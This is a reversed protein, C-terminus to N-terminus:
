GGVRDALAELRESWRGRLAEADVDADLHTLTLDLRTGQGDARLDLEVVTAPADESAHWSVRLQEQPHYSRLVGRSGDASRYPEGKTGLLAGEGLLAQSGVPSVLVEWVHAVPAQVARSVQVVPPDGAPAPDEGAGAQTQPGVGATM